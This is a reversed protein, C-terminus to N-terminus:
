YAIGTEAYLWQQSIRSRLGGRFCFLAGEPNQSAFNQWAQIRAAKEEGSVLQLGLLIAEDQGADKYRKGIAAREADNMLPLNITHPFAGERFEIPARVDLLPKAALVLSALDEIVPLRGSDPLLQERNM